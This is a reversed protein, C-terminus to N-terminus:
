GAARVRDFGPDQQRSTTVMVIIVRGALEECVSRQRKRVTLSCKGQLRLARMSALKTCTPRERGSVHLDQNCTDVHVGCPNGDLAHSTEKSSCAEPDSHDVDLDDNNVHVGGTTHTSAARQPM